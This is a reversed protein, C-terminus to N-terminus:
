PCLGMKQVYLAIADELGQQRELTEEEGKDSKTTNRGPKRHKKQVLSTREVERLVGHIRSQVRENSGSKPWKKIRKDSIHRTQTELSAYGKSLASNQSDSQGKAM